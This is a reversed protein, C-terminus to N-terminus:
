EAAVPEAPRPSQRGPADKPRAARGGLLVRAALSPALLTGLGGQFTLVQLFRKHADRDVAARAALRAIYWHLLGLFPRRAGEVEPYRLDETTTLLWAIDNTPALAKWFESAINELRPAPRGPRRRLCQDLAQAGLSATTMGQGFLPNFSCVADGVVLLGDPFKPMSEYHRRLNSPLRHTTIPTLPSSGELARSFEPRCLQQTYAEFGPEDSPPYKGCYGALTVIHRGDEVPFIYGVRTDHPAQPYVLMCQWDRDPDDRLRVIRSAYGVKTKVETEQPRGYGLSELWRPARTGRGSADVVLAAPLSELEDGDTGDGARLQVGTVRSHADDHLLQEVVHRDRIQISPHDRLLRQRIHWELMPRTQCHMFVGTSRRQKWVGHHFWLWDEAMDTRRTGAQLMEDWLGPFLEGMIESGKDLVAHTHRGQPVGKRPEPGTPAPDREVVVVQEFHDSLVRAALLGAM